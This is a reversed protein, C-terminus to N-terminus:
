RVKRRGRVCEVGNAFMVVACWVLIVACILRGLLESSM